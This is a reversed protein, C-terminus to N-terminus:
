IRRREAMKVRFSEREFPETILEFMELLRDYIRDGYICRLDAPSMNTSILYHYMEGRDRRKKYGQYLELLCNRTFGVARNNTKESIESEIGLDDVLVAHHNYAKICNDLSQGKDANNSLLLRYYFNYQAITSFMRPQLQDRKYFYGEYHDAYKEAIAKGIMKLMETKGTGVKGFLLYAFSDGNTLKEDIRHYLEPSLITHGIITGSDDKYNIPEIYKYTKM